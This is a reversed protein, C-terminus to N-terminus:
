PETGAMVPRCASSLPQVGPAAKTSAIVAATARRPRSRGAQQQTAVISQALRLGLGVAVVVAWLVVRGM